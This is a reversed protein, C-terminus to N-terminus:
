TGVRRSCAPNGAALDLVLDSQEAGWHVQVGGPIPCGCGRQAVQKLLEGSVTFFKGPCRIKGKTRCSDVQIFLQNGEPRLAM